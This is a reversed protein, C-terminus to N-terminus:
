SEGLDEPFNANWHLKAKTEEDLADHRAHLEEYFTERDKDGMVANRRFSPGLLLMDVLDEAFAGSPTDSMDHHHLKTGDNLTRLDNRFEEAYTILERMQPFDLMKATGDNEGDYPHARNQNRDDVAPKMRTKFRAILDEVEARTPHASKANPFLRQLSEDHSKDLMHAYHPDRKEREKNYRRRRIPVASIHSLLGGSEYLSTAWSALHNVNQDRFDLIMLFVSGNWWISHKLRTVRNLEAIFAELIYQRRVMSLLLGEEHQIREELTKKPGEPKPTKPVKARKRGLKFTTM